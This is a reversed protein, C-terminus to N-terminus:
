TEGLVPTEVVTSPYDSMETGRPVADRIRHPLDYAEHDCHGRLPLVLPTIRNKIIKLLDMFIGHQDVVLLHHGDNQM